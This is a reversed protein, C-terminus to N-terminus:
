VDVDVTGILTTNRTGPVDTGGYAPGLGHVQVGVDISGMSEPVPLMGLSVARITHGQTWRDLPLWDWTPSDYEATWLQSFRPHRGSYVPSMEFAIWARPSIRGLVRWYTELAIAPRSRNVLGDRPHVVAGVLELPGWRVRLPTMTTTADYIFSYFSAPLFRARAGKQLLLLGDDARSIGYGHQLAHMVVTHLTHPEIPTSPVSADLVIYQAQPGNHPHVTPLRYIWRRDSLHPELEDAAAVVASGPVTQLVANERQQHAGAAPVIYGRALPTFGYRWTNLGAAALVLICIAPPVWHSRVSLTSTWRVVTGAGIAAAGVAFPIIEASYQFFGSYMTSDSSLMNILLAPAALLFAPLALLTVFGVPSLLDGLYGLRPASTLTRAVTLPHVVIGKVVGGLGHGLYTYRALYPSQGTPNYAPIIVKVCLVFWLVGSIVTLAGALVKRRYMLLLGLMAVVLAVEEKTSIALAAAVAFLGVNGRFAFYLAWFLFCASLTVAHFDDLVANQLSPHLLYAAPFVLALWRSGITERALLYAPVAGSAVVVAQIVLLTDPSAHVFYFLSILLLLPEVHIGLRSTLVTGHVNMDTFRLWDGHMTNWVAQDMNGLDFAHSQYAGHRALSLWTFCAGALVILAALAAWPVWPLAIRPAPEDSRADLWM